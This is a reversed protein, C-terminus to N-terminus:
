FSSKFSFSGGQAVGFGNPVFGFTSGGGLYAQVLNGGRAFKVVVSESLEITQGFVYNVVPVPDYTRVTSEPTPLAALVQYTRRAGVEDDRDLLGVRYLSAEVTISRAGFLGHDAHATTAAGICAAFCAIGFVASRSM